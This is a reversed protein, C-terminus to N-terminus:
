QIVGNLIVRRVVERHHNNAEVLCSHILVVPYSGLPFSQARATIKPHGVAHKPTSMTRTHRESRKYLLMRFLM